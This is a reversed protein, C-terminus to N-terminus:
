WFFHQTLRDPRNHTVSLVHQLRHTALLGKLKGVAAMVIQPDFPAAGGAAPESEHEEQDFAAEGVEAEGLAVVFASAMTDLTAAMSQFSVASGKPAAMALRESFEAPFAAPAERRAQAAAGDLLAQLHARGQDGIALLLLRDTVAWHLKQGVLPIPLRHVDCDRYKDTKRVRAMGARELITELSRALAVGDTLELGLCMGDLRGFTATFEDAEMPEDAGAERSGGLLVFERGLHALVDPSLRVGVKEEVAAEIQQWDFPADPELGLVGKIFPEIESCELPGCSFNEHQRPVLALLGPLEARVPALISLIAGREGPLEVDIGLDVFAGAPAVTLSATGLRGVVFRMVAAIEAANTQGENNALILDLIQQGDFRVHLPAQPQSAGSETVDKPTFLREVMAEKTDTYVLMVAQDGLMRPLTLRVDGDAAALWESGALTTPVHGSQQDLALREIEACAASLDTHGDPGVALYAAANPEPYTPDGAASPELLVVLHVRGSYALVKARLDDVSFPADKAVEAAAEDLQQELPAVLEALAKGRLLEMLRTEAFAQAWRAPGDCSVVLTAGAPSPDLHAQACVSSGLLFSGLLRLRM